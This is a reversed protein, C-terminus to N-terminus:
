KTQKAKLFSAEDMGSLQCVKRDEATLAVSDGSAKLGSRDVTGLQVMVPAKDLYASLAVSDQTQAWPVLAESLKGDAKGKAILSDRKDTEAALALADVREKLTDHAQGKAILGQLAAHVTDPQANAGLALSDCVKGFFAASATIQAKVDNIKGIISEDADNDAGLAISDMGLLGAIAERLKKMKPTEKRANGATTLKNAEASAAIADIAATLLTLNVPNDEAAAAFSFLDDTAPENEMAISTVRYQMTSLGRIVPSFYRFIGEAILERGLPVYEVNTVWLGDARKELDCFGFTGASDPMLRIIDSEDVKYKEALEYLFHHSDIPVKTGKKTYYAIIKDVAAETVDMLVSTKGNQTIKWPGYPIARWAVPVGSPDREIPVDANYDYKGFASLAIAIDKM